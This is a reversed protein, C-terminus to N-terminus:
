RVVEDDRPAAGARELDKGVTANIEEDATTEGFSGVFLNPHAAKAEHVAAVVPAIKDAADDPDGRIDFRVVASRSDASIQEANAPALPSRVNAAVGTASIRAVLDKVAAAFVPSKVTLADSHVLVSEEAPRDFSEDLLTAMRGSEGPAADDDGLQKTGVVGGIAVAAVVLAIWGVTATKWHAASWRGARGALNLRM